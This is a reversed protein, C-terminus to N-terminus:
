YADTIEEQKFNSYLQEKRPLATETFKVWDGMCEYPYIGKTLLFTCKRSIM